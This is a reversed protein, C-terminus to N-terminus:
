RKWCFRSTFMWMTCRSLSSAITSANFAFHTRWLSIIAAMRSSKILFLSSFMVAM